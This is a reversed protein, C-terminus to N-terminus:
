KEQVSMVEILDLTAQFEDVSADKVSKKYRASFAVMTEFMFRNDVMMCLLHKLTEAGGNNLINKLQELEESGVPRDQISDSDKYWRANKVLWNALVESFEEKKGKYVIKMENVWSQESKFNTL